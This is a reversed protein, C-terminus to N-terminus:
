RPGATTIFRDAWADILKAGAYAALGIALAEALDNTDIAEAALFALVGALLSGVMHSIVFTVPREPDETKLRNLLAATGSVSSLILVMLWALLPVETLTSGLTISTAWATVPWMSWVCLKLAILHKSNVISRARNSM